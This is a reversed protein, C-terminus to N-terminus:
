RVYGFLLIQKLIVFLLFISVGIILYGMKRQNEYIISRIGNLFTTILLGVQYTIRFLVNDIDFFSLGAFLITIIAFFMITVSLKKNKVRQEM